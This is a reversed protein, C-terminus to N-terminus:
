PPSLDVVRDGEVGTVALQRGDPWLVGVWDAGTVDGLGFRASLENQSARSSGGTVDRFQLLDGTQVAVRAGVGGYQGNAPAGLIRVELWRASGRDTTNRYLTVRTGDTTASLIDVRGDRDYDAFAVAVNHAAGTSVVNPHAHERVDFRAPVEGRNTFSLHPLNDEQAVFLDAWSDGNFDEFGLGWGFSGGTGAQRTIDDFTGEGNNQLLPNNGINSVYYDVDGDHDMDAGDIGMPNRIDIGEADQTVNIFRAGAENRLLVHDGRDNWIWLDADGDNDYDTWLVACPNGRPSAAVGSQATMDAFTGNGRNLLLYANPGPLTSSASVIDLWGNGDLDGFSVVKSRGDAVKDPDSAPGGAGAESTADDFAGAGDNRLLIDTPQAGLYLDPDGDNDYDGAAVSYLDVGAVIAAIGSPATVDRFTGDGNNFFLRSSFQQGNTGRGNAIFIDPLGDGSLDLFAVGVGHTNGGGVATGLGAAVTVDDFSIPGPAVRDGDPVPAPVHGLDPVGELSIPEWLPRGSYSPQADPAPASSGCAAVLGVALTRLWM